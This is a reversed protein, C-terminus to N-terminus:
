LGGGNREAEEAAAAEILEKFIQRDTKPPFLLTDADESERLSSVLEKFTDIYADIFQGETMGEPKESLLISDRGVNSLYSLYVIFFEANSEGISYLPSFINYLWWKVFTCLNFEQNKTESDSTKLYALLKELSLGGDVKAFEKNENAIEVLRKVYLYPWSIGSSTILDFVHKHFSTSVVATDVTVELKIGHDVFFVGAYDKDRPVFVLANKVRRELQEKTM